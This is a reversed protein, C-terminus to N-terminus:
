DSESGSDKFPILPLIVGNVDLIRKKLNIIAGVRVLFDMGLIMDFGSKGGAQLVSLSIPITVYGDLASFEVFHIRGLISNSSNVGSLIGESQYDLLDNMKLRAVCDWTIVSMQAGTDLLAHVHKGFYELKVSFCQTTFFSEPIMEKAREIQAEINTKMSM